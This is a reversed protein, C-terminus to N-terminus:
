SIAVHSSNLRTSKRDLDLQQPDLAGPAAEPRQGLLAQGCQTQGAYPGQLVDVGPDLALVLHDRGEVVAQVALASGGRADVGRHVGQDVGRVHVMEMGIRADGQGRGSVALAQGALAEPVCLDSSRRTPSSNPHLYIRM